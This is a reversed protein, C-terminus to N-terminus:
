NGSAVPRVFRLVFKDSSPQNSSKDRTDAANRMVNRKISYATKGAASACFVLFVIGAIMNVNDTILAFGALSALIIAINRANFTMPVPATFRSRVAMALGLVFVLSSVLLPFLGPGARQFSGTPYRFSGLGFILAIAILFLGKLLNRDNM